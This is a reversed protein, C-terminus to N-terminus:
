RRKFYKSTPKNLDRSVSVGRGDVGNDDIRPSSLKVETPELCGGGTQLVTSTSDTFKLDASETGGDQHHGNKAGINDACSSATVGLFEMIQRSEGLGSYHERDGAMAVAQDGDAVLQSTSSESSHWEACKERDGEGIDGFHKQFDVKNNELEESELKTTKKNSM